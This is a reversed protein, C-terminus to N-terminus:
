EYAASHDRVSCAQVTCGPTGAKPYFYLVVAAGRLAALNVREGTQDPLDFAPAAQGKAIVHNRERESAAATQM